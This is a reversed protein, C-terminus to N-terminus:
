EWSVIVATGYRLVDIVGLMMMVVVVVPRVPRKISLGGCGMFSPYNPSRAYPSTSFRRSHSRKMETCMQRIEARHLLSYRPIQSTISFGASASVVAFGVGAMSPLRAMLLENGLGPHNREEHYPAVFPAIRLGHLV